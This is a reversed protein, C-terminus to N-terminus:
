PCQKVKNNIKINEVQQLYGLLNTYEQKKWKPMKTEMILYRLASDLCEETTAYGAGRESPEYAGELIISSLDDVIEVLKENEEKEKFYCELASDYGEWNDVGGCELANLKAEADLLETIRKESLNAM